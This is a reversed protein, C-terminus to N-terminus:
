EFETICGGVIELRGQVGEGRKGEGGERFTGKREGSIGGLGIPADRSFTLGEGGRGQLCPGM